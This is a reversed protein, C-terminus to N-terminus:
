KCAPSYLREANDNPDGYWGELILADVTQETVSYADLTYCGQQSANSEVVAIQTACALALLGLVVRQITRSM